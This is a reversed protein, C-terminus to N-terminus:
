SFYILAGFAPGIIFLSKFFISGLGSRSTASIEAQMFVAPFILALPMLWFLHYVSINIVMVLVIALWWYILTVLTSKIRFDPRSIFGFTWSGAFFLVLAWAIYAM